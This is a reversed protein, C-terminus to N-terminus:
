TLDGSHSNIWDIDTSHTVILDQWWKTEATETGSLVEPLYDIGQYADEFNGDFQNLETLTISVPLNVVYRDPLTEVGTSEWEESESNWKVMYFTGGAIFSLALVSNLRGNITFEEIAM